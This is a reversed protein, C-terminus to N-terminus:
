CLCLDARTSPYSGGPHVWCVWVTIKVYAGVRSSGSSSGVPPTQLSFPLFPPREAEPPRRPMLLEECLQTIGSSTSAGQLTCGISTDTLAPSHILLSSLFTYRCSSPSSLSTLVSSCTVDHCHCFTCDHGSEVPGKHCACVSM